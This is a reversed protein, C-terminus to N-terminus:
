AINNGEKMRDVEIASKIGKVLYGIIVIKVIIVIPSVFSEPYSIITLIQIIIYLVFGSIICALPKKHTYGGLVLFVIALILNPLVYRLVDSEDKNQFFLIMGGLVFVGTLYYLTNTANQLRKEYDRRNLAHAVPTAKFNAKEQETGKLPYGCHNCFQDEMEVKTFCSNCLATGDAPNTTIDMTNPNLFALYFVPNIKDIM